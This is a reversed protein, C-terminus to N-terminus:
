REIMSVKGRARGPMRAVDAAAADKCCRFGTQIGSYKEDHHATNARCRNRGTMWWGGRLESRKGPRAWPQRVWEDVNGIMDRVGFPSVCTAHSAERMDRNAHWRGDRLIRDQNCLAPAREYGYPYPLGEEGECAFEWEVNTCLRKGLSTCMMDAQTWSVGRLPVSDGQAVFEDRDMCYSMAHRTSTCVSPKQFEACVRKAPQGIPDDWRLCTQEWYQCHEGQVFVMGDPCPDSGTARVPEPPTQGAAKDAAAGIPLLEPLRAAAPAAAAMGTALPPRSSPQPRPHLSVSDLAFGSVAAISLLTLLHRAFRGRRNM